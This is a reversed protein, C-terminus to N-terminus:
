FPHALRDLPVGASIIGGSIARLLGPDLVYQRLAPMIGLRRFRQSALLRPLYANIIDADRLQGGAAVMVAVGFDPAASVMREGLAAAQAYDGERMAWLTPVISYFDPPNVEVSLARQSLARAAEWNGNLSEVYGYDALVDVMAPNLQVATNYFDRSHGVEGALFAVYARQAWNFGSTPERSLAQEALDRGREVLAEGEATDPGVRWGEDATLVAQIAAGEPWDRVPSQRACRELAGADFTARQERFMSYAVLCPYPELVLGEDAHTEIWNRAAKHLPGRPSGLRLSFEESVDQLNLGPTGDDLPVEVEFTAIVARTPTDQLLISYLLGRPSRRAVGSLVYVGGNAREVLDPDAQPGGYRASLDSFQNIDTVLELALGAVLPTGRQDDTLNEFDEVIVLPLKPQVLAPTSSTRQGLEPWFYLSALLLLAAAAGAVWISRSPAQPPRAGGAEETVNSVKEGDGDAVVGPSERAIFEPVYRGVPLVIRVPAQGLGLRDFEELLGRLRRAQVRVIPDSQPDFDESREFVDVAISYAKVSGSNGSLAANVIYTLFASLRPSRAMASWALLEDLAQRVAIQEDEAYVRGEPM